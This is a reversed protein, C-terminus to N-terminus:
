REDDIDKGVFDVLHRKGGAERSIGGNDAKEDEEGQSDAEVGDDMWECQSVISVIGEVDESQKANREELKCSNRDVKDAGPEADGSKTTLRPFDFSLVFVNHM